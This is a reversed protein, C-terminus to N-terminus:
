TQCFSSMDVNLEESTGVESRADKKKKEKKNKNKKKKKQYVYICSNV